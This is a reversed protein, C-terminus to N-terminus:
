SVVRAGRDRSTVTAPDIRGLKVLRSTIAGSTRGHQLAMQGATMKADFERCLRADEDESWPTGASTLATRVTRSSRRAPVGTDTTKLLAAAAFLARVTDTTHFTDHPIQAGTNPDVGNALSELVVIVQDREM